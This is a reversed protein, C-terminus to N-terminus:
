LYHLTRRDFCYEMTSTRTQTNIPKDVVKNPHAVKCVRISISVVITIRWEMGLIRM